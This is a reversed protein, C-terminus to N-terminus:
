HNKFFRPGFELDKEPAPDAFQSALAGVICFGLFGLGIKAGSGMRCGSLGFNINRLSASSITAKFATGSAHTPISCINM